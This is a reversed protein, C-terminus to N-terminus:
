LQGNKTKSKRLTKESTLLEPVVLIAREDCLRISYVVLDWMKEEEEKMDMDMETSKQSYQKCAIKTHNMRWATAWWVKEERIHTSSTHPSVNIYIDYYYHITVCTM